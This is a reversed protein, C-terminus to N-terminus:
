VKFRNKIIFYAQASFLQIKEDTECLVGVDIAMIKTTLITQTTCHALVLNMACLPCSPWVKYTKKLHRSSKNSLVTKFLFTILACWLRFILVKLFILIDLFCGSVLGFFYLTNWLPFVFGLLFIAEEITAVLSILILLKVTKSTKVADMWDSIIEQSQKFFYFIYFSVFVCTKPKIQPM